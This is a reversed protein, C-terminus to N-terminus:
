PRSNIEIQTLITLVGIWGQIFVYLFLSGFLSMIILFIGMVESILLVGSLAMFGSMILGLLQLTELKHITRNIKMHVLHHNFYKSEATSM